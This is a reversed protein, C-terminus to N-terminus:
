ELVKRALVAQLRRPVLRLGLVSLKNTLGTVVVRRGAVMAKVAARAVADPDLSTARQIPSRENGSVQFFETNTSGPCLITVTVGTARLEEALAEGHHLVFSKTAGYAAYSPCPQFAATSAVQLVRGEGRRVMEGAFHKTLQAVALVNLVLMREEAGWGHDLGPGHIGVGANNVLVDIALDLAQVREILETAGGPRSLDVEVVDVRVAHSRGLSDALEALRERRRACVVLHAGHAALVRALERGIGSSAGTVLAHRGKLDFGM